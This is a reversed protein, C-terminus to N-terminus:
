FHLIFTLALFICSFMENFIAFTFNHLLAQGPVFNRTPPPPKGRGVSKTAAFM